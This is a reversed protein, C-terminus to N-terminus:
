PILDGSFTHSLRTGLFLQLGFANSCQASCCCPAHAFWWMAPFLNPPNLQSFKSFCTLLSWCSLLSMRVMLLLLSPIFLLSLCVGTPPHENRRSNSTKEWNHFLCLKLMIALSAHSYYPLIGFYFLLTISSCLSELRTHLTSGLCHHPVHCMPCPSSYSIGSTPEV